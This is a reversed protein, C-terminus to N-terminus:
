LPIASDIRWGPISIPTLTKRVGDIWVAQLGDCQWDALLYVLQLFKRSNGYSNQYAMRGASAVVGFPIRRPQAGTITASTEVGRVQSQRGSGFLANVGYSLGLSLGVNVVAGVALASVGGLGLM